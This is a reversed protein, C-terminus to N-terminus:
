TGPAKPPVVKGHKAAMRIAKARDQQIIKGQEFRNETKPDWPNYDNPGEGARGGSGGGPQGGGGTNDKFLHKGEKSQSLDEVFHAISYPDGGKYKRQKGDPEFAIVNGEEDLKFIQRARMKLDFAAGDQLGLPIAAQVVQDGIVADELRTRLKSITEKEGQLQQQLPKIAEQAAQQRVQDLEGRKVLKHDELDKEIGVLRTYKELDVDRYRGEIEEKERQLRENNDRFEKVRDTTTLGELELEGIADLRVWGGNREAYLPRFNEEVDEIKAVKKTLKLPM